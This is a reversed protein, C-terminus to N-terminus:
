TPILTANLSIHMVDAQAFHFIEIEVVLRKRLKVFIALPQRM